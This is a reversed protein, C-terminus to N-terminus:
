IYRLCIIINLVATIYYILWPLAHMSFCELLMDMADATMTYYVAMKLQLGTETLGTCNLTINLICM